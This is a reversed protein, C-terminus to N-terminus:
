NVVELYGAIPKTGNRKDIIFFYTGDPLNTGMLSIGKNSQGDFYTEVNDYGEAEYVLTGARNFIKVLNTPYHDICDIHFIDNQGDGNRSVGNFPRIETEVTMSRTESCGLATTVTVTYTGAPINQLTPGPIAMGNVDWEITAIDVDNLMYIALYGTEEKCTSPEVKFDFNPYVPASMITNNAPGSICGTIRSTASVYYTGVDLDSYIEGEFQATTPDPTSGPNTHYWHFIYDSTNGNVSAALAGNPEICSTVHSLVDVIPLFVPLQNQPITIQTINSCGTVLNTAMVTYTTATLSNVDVGTFIPLGVPTTGEYWDFRYNVVDGEVHAMAAGDPRTPDCMTLPKVIEATVTPFSRMDEVVVTQPASTCFNDAQDVAIVTYSGAALSSNQKGTFAAPSVVVDGVSWLYDYNNSGGSSVTAFVGGNDTACFTLPTASASLEVPVVRLPLVYTDVAVCQNSNNIVEITYTVETQGLPVTINTLRADTGVIPSSADPGLHWVYSYGSMSNGSGVVELEGMTNAPQECRTPRIIDTLEVMVSNITKDEIEFEVISTACSLGSAGATKTAQMYYKGAPVDAISPGAFALVNMNADMWTFTYDTVPVSNTGEKISNVVVSAGNPSMCLTVDSIQLDVEAISVTPPNDFVQFTATSSCGTSTPTTNTVRVTYFGAPLNSAISGSGVAVGSTNTGLAPDSTSTGEFWEYSYNTEPAAGDINLEISGNGPAGDCNM